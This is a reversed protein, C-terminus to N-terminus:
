QELHEECRKPPIYTYMERLLEWDQPLQTNLTLLYQTKWLPQELLIDLEM